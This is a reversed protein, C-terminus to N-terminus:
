PQGSFDPIEDNLNGMATAGNNFTAADVPAQTNINSAYVATVGPRDRGKIEKVNIRCRKGMWWETTPPNSQTWGCAMCVKKLDERGIRTNEAAKEAKGNNNYIIWYKAYHNDNEFSFEVQNHGGSSLGVQFDSIRAEHIGVPFPSRVTREEVHIDNLDIELYNVM